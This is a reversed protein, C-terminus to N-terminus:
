EDTGQQTQDQASMGYGLQGAANNCDMKLQYEEAWFCQWDIWTHDAADLKHWEKYTDAFMGSKM